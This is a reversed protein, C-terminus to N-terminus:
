TLKYKKLNYKEALGVREDQSLSMMYKKWGPCWKAHWRWLRGLFSKPNNDYKARFGCNECSQDAM